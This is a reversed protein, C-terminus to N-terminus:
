IDNTMKRDVSRGNINDQQRFSEEESNVVLVHQRNDFEEGHWRCSELDHIGRVSLLPGLM